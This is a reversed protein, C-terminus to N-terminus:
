LLHTTQTTVFMHTYVCKFHLRAWLGPGRSEQSWARLSFMFFLVGITSIIATLLNLFWSPLKYILSLLLEQVPHGPMRSVEYIGTLSINRATLILGWADEEAGFGSFIFPIRTLLVVLAVLYLSRNNDKLILM